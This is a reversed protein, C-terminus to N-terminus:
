FNFNNKYSILTRVKILAYLEMSFEEPFVKSLYLYTQAHYM